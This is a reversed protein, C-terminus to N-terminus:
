AKNISYIFVHSHPKFIIIKGFTTMVHVLIAHVQNFHFPCWVRQQCLFIIQLLATHEANCHPVCNASSEARGASFYIHPSFSLTSVLGHCLNFVATSNPEGPLNGSYFCQRLDGAFPLRRADTYVHEVTLAHSLFGDERELRLNFNRGFAPLKYYIPGTILSSQGYKIFRKNHSYPQGNRNVRQVKTVEFEFRENDSTFDDPLFYRARGLPPFGPFYWIYVLLPNSTKTTSSACDDSEGTRSKNETAAFVYYILGLMFSVRLRKM